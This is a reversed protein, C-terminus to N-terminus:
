VPAPVRDAADRRVGEGLAKRLQSVHVQVAKVATSPPQDGWLEDVLRATPVLENPRLLLVALM